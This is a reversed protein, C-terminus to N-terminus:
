PKVPMFPGHALRTYHAEAANLVERVTSNGHGHTRGALDIRSLEILETPAPARGDEILETLATAIELWAAGPTHADLVALEPADADVFCWQFREHRM